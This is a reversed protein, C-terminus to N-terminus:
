SQCDDLKCGQRITPTLCLMVFFIVIIAFPIVFVLFFSKVVLAMFFETYPSEALCDDSSSFFAIMLRVYLFLFYLIALIALGLIGNEFYEPFARASQEKKGVYLLIPGVLNRIILLGLMVCVFFYISETVNMASTYCTGTKAQYVLILFIGFALIGALQEGHHSKFYNDFMSTVQRQHENRDDKQNILDEERNNKPHYTSVLIILEFVLRLCAYIMIMYALMGTTSTYVNCGERSQHLYLKYAALGGSATAVVLQFKRPIDQHGIFICVIVSIYYVIHGYFFVERFLNGGENCSDNSFSSAIIISAFAWYGCFLDGLWPIKSFLRNVFDM